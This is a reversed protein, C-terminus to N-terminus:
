KATKRGPKSHFRIYGRRAPDAYGEDILLAALYVAPNMKTQLQLQIFEGLSGQGPDDFKGGVPAEADRFRELMADMFHKPFKIPYQMQGPWIEAGTAISGMVRFKARGTRTACWRSGDPLAEQDSPPSAPLDDGDAPVAACTTQLKEVEAERIRINNGIRIARLKGQEILSMVDKVEIKLLEALEEPTLYTM